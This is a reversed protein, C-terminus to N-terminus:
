KGKPITLKDNVTKCLNNFLTNAAASLIHRMLEQPSHWSDCYDLAEFNDLAHSVLAVLAEKQNALAIYQSAYQQSRLKDLVIETFLVANVVM